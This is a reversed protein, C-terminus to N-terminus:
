LSVRSGVSFISSSIVTLLDICLTNIQCNLASFFACFDELVYSGEGVILPDGLVQFLLGNQDANYRVRSSKGKENAPSRDSM